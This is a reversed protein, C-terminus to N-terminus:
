LRKLWQGSRVRWGFAAVKFVEELAMLGVVAPLSWHWVLGALAVLPVNVLWMSILDVWMLWKADGGSRLIGISVMTNHAKAGFMLCLMCLTNLALDHLEAPILGQLVGSLRLLLTLLAMVLGASLASLSVLRLLRRASAYCADFAQRGLGHGLLIGTAVSAGVVLSIMIGEVPVVLNYAALPLQGMRSIILTSALIGGAWAVEKVMLAASGHWVLHADRRRIQQALRHLPGTKLVRLLWMIEVVRAVSTAVAAAAVGYAPMGLNGGIFLFNLGTNVALAVLGAHLPTRTNGSSRVAAALTMSVATLPAYAASWLLFTTAADVVAADPSLSAAVPGALFLSCLSMPLAMLLGLLIAMSVPGRMARLRGAGSLQAVLVGTGSALGALVMTLVFFVRGVLGVGGLAAPGVGSVMLTDVFSLTAGLLTQLSIPGGVMWLARWAARDTTPLSLPAHDTQAESLSM